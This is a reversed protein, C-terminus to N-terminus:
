KKIKIFDDDDDHEAPEEPEPAPSSKPKQRKKFMERLSECPDEREARPTIWLYDAAIQAGPTSPALDSIDKAQTYAELFMLAAIKSDPQRHRIYWPVARDTRVHGNGAILIAGAGSSSDSNDLMAEALSADRFRQVKTMPALRERPMLNCHSKELDDLLASALNKPLAQSLFMRDLAKAGLWELGNKGVKKIDARRADGPYIQLGAGITATAIPKYIEWDPWGSNEWGLAPGLGAVVAELNDMGAADMYERLAESQDARIQEMVVAPKRGAKTLQEIVWGQLLHHDPNDHVEGLLLYDSELLRSVLTKRSILKKERVSWITGVLPHDADIETQWNQMAAMATCAGWEMILFVLAIVWKNM